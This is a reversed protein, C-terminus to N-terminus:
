SSYYNQLGNWLVKQANIRCKVADDYNSFRGLFYNKGKYIITARWKNRTKEWYVGVVDNNNTKNLQQQQISVWRCNTPEYHGNTNIRDLTMGKAPLGMDQLFSTFSNKWKDCVKIGRAGYWKYSPNQINNCRAKMAVWCDYIPQDSLGHKKNSGKAIRGKSDRNTIM